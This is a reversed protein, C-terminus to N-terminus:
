EEYILSREPRKFVLIAKVNFIYFFFRTDVTFVYSKPGNACIKVKMEYKAVYDPAIFGSIRNTTLARPLVKEEM